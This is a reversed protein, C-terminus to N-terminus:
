TMINTSQITMLNILADSLRNKSNERARLKERKKLKKLPGKIALVSYSKLIYVTYCLM